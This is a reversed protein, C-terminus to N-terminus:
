IPSMINLISFFLYFTAIIKLNSDISVRLLNLYFLISPINIVIIASTYKICNLFISLVSHLNIKMLWIVVYKSKQEM